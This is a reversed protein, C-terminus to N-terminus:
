HCGGPSASLCLCCCFCSPRHQPFPSHPVEASVLCNGGNRCPRRDCERVESDCNVGTFGPLCACTYSGQGTNMCTAGNACPKHHTCYNLDLSSLAGNYERNEAQKDRFHNQKWLPFTLGGQDCLIGGWGEKCACEWPETCTGHKCSPHLKCVDCFVGQWGERCRFCLCTFPWM